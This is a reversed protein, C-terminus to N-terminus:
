VDRNKEYNTRIKINPFLLIDLFAYWTVFEFVLFFEWIINMRETDM